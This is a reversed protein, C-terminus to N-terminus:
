RWWHLKRSEGEHGWWFRAVMAQIDDCLDVPLHFVSMTYTLVAQAVTKILLERGGIPFLKGRWLQMKSWVREKITRFAERKGRGVLTPLGLYKDHPQTQGLGLM